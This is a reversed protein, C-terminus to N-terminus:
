QPKRLDTLNRHSTGLLKERHLHERHRRLAELIAEIPAAEESV